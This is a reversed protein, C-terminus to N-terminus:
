DFPSHVYYVVEGDSDVGTESYLFRRLFIGTIRVIQTLNEILFAAVQWCFDM